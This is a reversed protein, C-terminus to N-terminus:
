LENRFPSQQQPHRDEDRQDQEDSFDPAAEAFRSVVRARVPQAGSRHGAQARHRKLLEKVKRQLHRAGRREEDHEDRDGDM